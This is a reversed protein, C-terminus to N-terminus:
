DCLTITGSEATHRFPCAAVRDNFAGDVTGVEYIVGFSANENEFYDAGSASPQTRGALARGSLVLALRKGYATGTSPPLNNVTVCNPGSAGSCPNSPSAAAGPAIVYQTYRHWANNWFWTLRTDSLVQAGELHPIDVSSEQGVSLLLLNAPWSVGVTLTANSNSNSLSMSMTASGSNSIVLDQSRLTSRFANAVDGARLTIQASPTGIGLLRSFRCRLVAGQDACGLSDLLGNTSMATVTWPNDDCAPDIPMLGYTTEDNGCYNTTTPDGWTSAFPLYPLGHTVGWSRGTVAFEADDWGRLAPAVQRQLRDAVPGAIADAWEAATISIVRDNTWTADGPSTVVGTTTGCELFNTAVLTGTNRTAVQQNQKSCGAPPTGATTSTDIPVGPAIIMAVVTSGNHTLLGPTGFNIPANRFGRMVYWLPEGYGDRLEDVGLTKWPLRGVVLLSASCSASSTGPNALTLSEPCPLQGPEATDSRAAYQAVYALLAQKGARLTNGTIIEREATAVPARGLAGVAFWAIGLVMATLVLIAVAGQERRPPRM